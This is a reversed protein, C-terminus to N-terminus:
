RVAGDGADWNQGATSRPSGIFGAARDWELDIGLLGNKVQPIEPLDGGKIELHSQGLESFLDEILDNLDRRSAM